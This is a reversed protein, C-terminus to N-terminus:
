WGILDFDELKTPLPQHKYGNGNSFTNDDLSPIDSSGDDEIFDDNINDTWDEPGQNMHTKDLNKGSVAAPRIQQKSLSIVNLIARSFSLTKVNSM